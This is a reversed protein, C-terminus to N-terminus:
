PSASVQGPTHRSRVQEELFEKASEEADEFTPEQGWHIIEASGVKQIIWHGLGTKADYLVDAIYERFALRTNFVPM